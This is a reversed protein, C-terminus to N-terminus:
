VVLRRIRRCCCCVWVLYSSAIGNRKEHLLFDSLAPNCPWVCGRLSGPLITCCALWQLQLCYGPFYLPGQYTYKLSGLSIHACRCLRRWGGASPLWGSGFVLASCNQPSSQPYSCLSTRFTSCLHFGTSSPEQNTEVWFMRQYAKFDLM